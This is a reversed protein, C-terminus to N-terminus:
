VNHEDLKIHWFRHTADFKLFVKVQPPNDIMEDVTKLHYHEWFRLIWKKQSIFLRINNSKRVTILSHVWDTPQDQKAIVGLQEMRLRSTKVKNRLAVPIKRSPYKAPTVTEDLNLHSKLFKISKKFVDQYSKVLNEM